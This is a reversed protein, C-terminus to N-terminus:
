ATAKLASDIAKNIREVLDAQTAENTETDTVACEARVADVAALLPKVDRQSKTIRAQVLYRSADPDLRAEDARQARERIEQESM